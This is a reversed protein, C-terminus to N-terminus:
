IQYFNILKNKEEEKLKSFINDLNISKLNTKRKAKDATQIILWVLNRFLNFETDTGPWYQPFRMIFKENFIGDKNEFFFNLVTAWEKNFDEQTKASLISKLTTFLSYQWRGGEEPVVAKNIDMAEKYANLSFLVKEVAMFVEEKKKGSESKVQTVQTEESNSVEEQVETDTNSNEELADLSVIEKELTEQVENAKESNASSFQYTRNKKSM